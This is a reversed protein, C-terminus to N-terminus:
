SFYKSVSMEMNYWMYLWSVDAQTHRTPTVSVRTISIGMVIITLSFLSMLALKKKLPVRVNWLM